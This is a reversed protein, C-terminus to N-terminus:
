KKAAEERKREDARRQKERMIESNNERAQGINGGAPGPGGKKGANAAARKRARERDIDRQNGRTM